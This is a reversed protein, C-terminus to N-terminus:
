SVPLSRIIEKIDEKDDAYFINENDIYSSLGYKANEHFFVAKKGTYFAELAVTSFGTMCILCSNISSEVTNKTIDDFKINKYKKLISNKQAQPILNLPHERFIWLYDETENVVDFIKTNFFDPWLQLAVLITKKPRNLLKISEKYYKSKLWLNGVNQFHNEGLAVSIRNQSVNDWCWFKSPIGLSNQLGFLNSYMPHCDNQIGHQYDICEISKGKLAEILAFSNADYYAIFIVKEIKSKSPLFYSYFATYCKIRSIWNHVDDSPFSISKGIANSVSLCVVNFDNIFKDDRILRNKQIRYYLKAALSINNKKRNKSYGVVFTIINTCKERIGEVHKSIKNGNLELNFHSSPSVLIVREGKSFKFYLFMFCMSLMSFISDIFFQIKITKNNKKYKSGRFYFYIFARMILFQREYRVDIKKLEEEIKLIFKLLDKNNM